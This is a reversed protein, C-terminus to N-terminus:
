ALSAPPQDSGLVGVQAAQSSQCPSSWAGRKLEQSGMGSPGPHDKESGEEDAKQSLIQHWTRLNMNRLTVVQYRERPFCQGMEMNEM